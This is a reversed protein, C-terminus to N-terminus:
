ASRRVTRKVERLGVRSATQRTRKPADPFANLAPLENGALTEIDDLYFKAFTPHTLRYQKREPSSGGKTAMVALRADAETIYDMETLMALAHRYDRARNNSVLTRTIDLIPRAVEGEAATLGAYAPLEYYEQAEKRAVRFERM